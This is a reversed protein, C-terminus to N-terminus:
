SVGRAKALRRSWDHLFQDLGRDTLPHVLLSRLVHPPVTAADAGARAVDAFRLPSPISSALVTCEVDFNGFVAHIDRVAACGDAGVDDLQGVFPSVYTAGAKAAFLAQAANFVLTVDVRVGESVLRRTALLGEEIMPLRVVINDALRALEKGERYMDDAAVAVVAAGVPGSVRKAIERLHTKHDRDPAHGAVLSPNTTVGDILGTATAWTIQDLDATDLLIKM